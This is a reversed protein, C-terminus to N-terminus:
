EQREREDREAQRAPRSAWGKYSACLQRHPDRPSGGDRPEVVKWRDDTFKVRCTACGPAGDRRATPKGSLGPVPQRVRLLLVDIGGQAGHEGHESIRIRDVLSGIVPRVEASASAM